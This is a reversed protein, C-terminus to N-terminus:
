KGFIRPCGEEEFCSLYSRVWDFAKELEFCNRNKVKFKETLRRPVFMTDVTGRGSMFWYKMKDINIVDRFRGDFIKQYLKFTHELLKIERYCNTNLSDEKGKFIPVLYSSM